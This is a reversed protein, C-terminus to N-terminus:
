DATYAEDSAVVVGQLASDWSVNFGLAEGLDRLKFYNNANITYATLDVLEGNLYIPASNSVYDQATGDGQALEGGVETYAEGTTIAIASLDYDWVVNFQADTGSLIYAIDRLKFYNNAEINYADFAVEAGDVYVPSATPAAQVAEEAVEETTAEVTEEAVDETAAEVTEEAVEETAAIVTAQDYDPYVCCVPEETSDLLVTELLFYYHGCLIDFSSGATIYSDAYWDVEGAAVGALYEDMTYTTDTDTLVVTLNSCDFLRQDDVSKAVDFNISQFQTGDYYYLNLWYIDETITVTTYDECIYTMADNVLTSDSETVNSIDLYGDTVTEAALATTTLTAVLLTLTLLTAFLKKM